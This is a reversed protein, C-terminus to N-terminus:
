KRVEEFRIRSGVTVKEKAAMGGAIELVSAAPVDPGYNPCPDAKCPPTDASVFLVRGEADMWIMDLPIMTNKMWFKHPGADTFLFLMGSRAPLSERFMLGQAQDEPTRAIEISYVAGSPLVARPGTVATSTATPPPTPSSKAAGGCASSLALLITLFFPITGSGQGGVGSM